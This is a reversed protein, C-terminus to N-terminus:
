QHLGKITEILEIDDQLVRLNTTVPQEGPKTVTMEIVSGVPISTSLEHSIFSMVKPHNSQFKKFVGAVKFMDAPNLM